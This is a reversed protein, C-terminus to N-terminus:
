FLLSVANESRKLNLPRARPGTLPLKRIELGSGNGRLWKHKIVDLCFFDSMAEFELDTGQEAPGQDELGM